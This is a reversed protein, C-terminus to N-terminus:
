VRASVSSGSRMMLDATRAMLVPPTQYVLSNKSDMYRVRLAGKWNYVFLVAGIRGATTSSWQVPSAKVVNQVKGQLTVTDVSPAKVGQGATSSDTASVLTEAGGSAQGAVTTADTAAVGGAAVSNTTM